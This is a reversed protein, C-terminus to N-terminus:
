ALPEFSHDNTISGGFNLNYIIMYKNIKIKTPYQRVPSIDILWWRKNGLLPPLLLRTRDSWDLFSRGYELNSLRFKWICLCLFICTLRLYYLPNSPPAFLKRPLFLHLVIIYHSIIYQSTKLYSNSFFVPIFTTSTEAFDAKWTSWAKLVITSFRISLFSFFDVPPSLLDPSLNFLFPSKFLDLLPHQWFYNIM